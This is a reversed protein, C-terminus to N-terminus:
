DFDLSVGAALRASWRPTEWVVDGFAVFRQRTAWYAMGPQLYLVLAGFRFQGETKVLLTRNIRTHEEQSTAGTRQGSFTGVDLGASAAAALAFWHSLHQTLGLSLEGAVDDFEGQYLETEVARASGLEVGLGTWLRTDRSPWKGWPALRVEGGFRWRWTADADTRVATYLSLWPGSTPEAPAVIRPPPESVPAPTPSSVREETEAPVADPAELPSEDTSDAEPGVGVMRVATKVSLALAAATPGDYPPAPVPRAVARDHLADYVWLAFGKLDRALWVVIRANQVESIRRASLSTSPMSAGPVEGDSQKVRLGWPGLATTLACNLEPGLQLGVVLEGDGAADPTQEPCAETLTQSKCPSAILTICFAVSWLIRAPTWVKASLLFSLPQM